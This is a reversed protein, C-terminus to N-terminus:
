PTIWFDSSEPHNEPLLTKLEMDHTTLETILEM